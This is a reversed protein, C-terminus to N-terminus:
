KSEKQPFVGRKADRAIQKVEDSFDNSLIWDWYGRPVQSLPTASEGHKGFNMVPRGDRWAFKGETDVCGPRPTEFFKRHLMEVTRPLEQHRELQAELVRLTYRADVLADHAGEMEEDLYDKVCATLDRPNFECHIKFADLIRPKLAPLGVRELEANIFKLDFGVNYGAVDCGFLSDYLKKAIEKFTPAKAERIMEDTIHHCETAEATIHVGPDVLTQWEVRRGDPYVKVAGIQIIRDTQFATGTTEVDLVVLPINLNIM